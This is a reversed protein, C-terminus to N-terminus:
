KNQKPNTQNIQHLYKMLSCLIYLSQSHLPISTISTSIGQYEIFTFLHTTEAQDKLQQLNMYIQKTLKFLRLRMTGEFEEPKYVKQKM